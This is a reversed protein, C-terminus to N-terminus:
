STGLRAPRVDGTRALRGPAFVGPDGAALASTLWQLWRELEDWYGTAEPSAEPQVFEAQDIDSQMERLYQRAEVTRVIPASAEVRGVLRLGGLLVRVMPAWRPLWQPRSGVFELLDDPRALRFHRRRHLVTWTVLGALRLSEIELDVARKTFAVEDALDAASFAHDPSSALVRIIEARAGTGFLARLRLGFLAPRDLSDLRSRGTPHYPRAIGSGPWNVRARARVTSAYEEFATM